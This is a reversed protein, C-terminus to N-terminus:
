RKILFVTDGVKLNHSNSFGANVELMMNIATTPEYVSLTSDQQGATPPLVNSIIDVVRGNNIFVFDLPFNMGKMWFQYKKTEPFVFLMGSSSALSTRGSLGKSRKEPTDVVEVSIVTQGIKIQSQSLNQNAPLFPALVNQNIYFYLAGLAVVVLVVMQIAFKKDM